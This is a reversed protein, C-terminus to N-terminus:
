FSILKGGKRTTCCDTIESEPVNLMHAGLVCVSFANGHIGSSCMM